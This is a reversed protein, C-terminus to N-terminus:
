FKLDITIYKWDTKKREPSDEDKGQFTNLYHLGQVLNSMKHEFLIM